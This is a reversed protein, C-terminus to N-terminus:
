PIWGNRNVFAPIVAFDQLCDGDLKATDNHDIFDAVLRPVCGASLLGHGRGPGVLHRGHSFHAVTSEGYRPPTVPDFEGSLLLAPVDSNVAVHFDDPRAGKPWAACQAQMTTIFANGMLTNADESRARFGHADESCIVAMQMAQTIQEGLDGSVLRSQALLADAKGNAAEHLALPLLAATEPAYAFMRVVGGVDGATLEEQLAEGSKPDRYDVVMPQARLAAQLTALDAAPDGFAAHCAPQERCRQFIGQVANELNRAHENGLILEPPVVGDLVLSRVQTPYSRLYVQAVRTGYSVGILNIQAAGIALRVRELDTVAISTTYYRPDAKGALTALCRKTAAAQAADANEAVNEDEAAEETAGEIGIEDSCDLPNSEGTGRQDVLIVNRKELIRAFGPAVLPFAEVASQGPGGAIFFVPDALPEARTAKVWGIRLSIKRGDPAEPNEPVDLRACLAGLLEGQSPNKLDCGSFSLSGLRAPEAAGAAAASAISVALMVGAWGSGRRVGM